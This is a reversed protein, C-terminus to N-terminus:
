WGRVEVVTKSSVDGVIKSLAPLLDVSGTGM